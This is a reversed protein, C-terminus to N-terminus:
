FLKQSSDAVRSTHLFDSNGSELIRLFIQEIFVESLVILCILSYIYILSAPNQEIRRGTEREPPHWVNKAKEECTAGRLCCRRDRRELTGQLEHDALGSKVSICLVCFVAWYPDFAHTLHMPWCPDPWTRDLAQIRQGASNLAFIQLSLGFIKPIPSVSNKILSDKTLQTQIQKTSEKDQGWSTSGVYTAM